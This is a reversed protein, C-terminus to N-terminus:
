VEEAIRAILPIGGPQSVTWDDGLDLHQHGFDGGSCQRCLTPGENQQVALEAIEELTADDPADIEVTTNAHTTLTVRYRPM